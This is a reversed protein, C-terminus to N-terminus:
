AGAAQYVIAIAAILVSVDVRNFVVCQLLSFSRETLLVLDLEGLLRLLRRM